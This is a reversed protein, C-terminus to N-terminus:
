PLLGAPLALNVTPLDFLHRVAQAVGRALEVEARGPRARSLRRGM